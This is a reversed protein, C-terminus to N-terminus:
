HCFDPQVGGTGTIKMWGSDANDAQREYQDGLDPLEKTTYVPASCITSGLWDIYDSVEGFRYRRKSRAPLIIRVDPRKGLVAQYYNLTAFENFGTIAVAGSPLLTFTAEAFNEAELSKAMLRRGDFQYVLLGVVLLAPFLYSAWQLPRNSSYSLLWLAGFAIWVSFVLYAPLVMLFYDGPGFVTYYIMYISFIMAMFHGFVKHMRTLVVAGAIGVPLGIFLLSRTFIELHQLFRMLVFNLDRIQLPAYQSGSMYLLMNLVSDPVEGAVPPANLALFYNATGILIITLGTVAVFITLDRAKKESARYILYAFAPFLLINAFYAGLAFAYALMWTAFHRRNGGVCWLWVYLLTISLFLMSLSYVETVIASAWVQFSFAYILAGFLALTAYRKLAYILLALFGTSASACLASLLTTGRYPEGFLQTMFHGLISHVPSGPAHSAGLQWAALALEASDHWGVSRTLTMYYVVLSFLIALVAPLAANGSDTRGASM